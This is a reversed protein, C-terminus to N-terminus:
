SHQTISSLEGVVDFHGSGKHPTGGIAPLLVDDLSPTLFGVGLVGLVGVLILTFCCCATAMTGLAASICATKAAPHPLAM